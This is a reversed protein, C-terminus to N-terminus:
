YRGQEDQHMEAGFAYAAIPNYGHINSAKGYQAADVLQNKLYRHNMASLWDPSKNVVRSLPITEPAVELGNVVDVSMIRNQQLYQQVQADIETGATVDLYGKGLVKGLASGVPVTQKPFTSIARVMDEYSVVEGPVFPAAAPAKIVRVHQHAARALLEFHRRDESQGTNKFVQYVNEAAASRAFGLNRLRAIDQLNDIGTSLPLGPYVKVKEKIGKALELNPPVHYDWYYKMHETPMAHVIYRDPVPQTQHITVIWGGQPARRIRYIEGIVECLLKRNSYNKPMELIQRVGPEGRLETHKGALTTSHKSSIVMQNLPEGMNGATILGAADGIEYPKETSNRLGMCKQCVSGGPAECTQPSRVLVKEVGKRLLEQQVDATVLDNRHLHCEPVDRALYRSIIADDRPPFLLGQETGCDERSVVSPMLLNSIIKSMEGPKATNVRGTAVNKRSEAAGLWFHVPDVGEAYSKPFIVPVVNGETDSVVGPSSRLKMLQYKNSTLASNVMITADNSPDSLDNKSLEDQLGALHRDLSENDGSAKDKDTLAVYKKIIADRRPKNPVSIEDIGMTVPDYTSFTDGLRKLKSVVDDYQDQHKRAVEILLKNFASKDLQQTVHIDQPLAKDILYQAFTVAM